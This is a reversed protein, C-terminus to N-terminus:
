KLLSNKLMHGQKLVLGLALMCKFKVGNKAM